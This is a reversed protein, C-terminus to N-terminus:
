QVEKFALTYFFIPSKEFRCTEEGFIDCFLTFQYQYFHYAYVKQTMAYWNLSLALLSNGQKAIIRDSGIALCLAFRMTNLNELYIYMNVIAFSFFALNNSKDPVWGVTRHYPGWDEAGLKLGQGEHEALLWSMEPFNFCTAQKVQEKSIHICNSQFLNSSQYIENQTALTISEKTM